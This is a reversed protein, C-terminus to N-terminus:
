CVFDGVVYLRVDLLAILFHILEFECQEDGRNQHDKNARCHGIPAVLKTNKTESFGHM